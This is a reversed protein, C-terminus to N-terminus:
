EGLVDGKIKEWFAAMRARNGSQAEVKEEIEVLATRLKQFREPMRSFMSPEPAKEGRIPDDYHLSFLRNFSLRVVELIEEMASLWDPDIKGYPATEFISYQSINLNSLSEYSVRAGSMRESAYIDINKARHERVMRECELEARRAKYYSAIGHGKAEEETLREADHDLDSYDMVTPNRGYDAFRNVICGNDDWEYGAGLSCFIGFLVSTRDTYLTPYTNLLAKVMEDVKNM